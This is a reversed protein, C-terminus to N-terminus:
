RRAGATASPAPNSIGITYPGGAAASAAASAEASAAASRCREARRCQCGREARGCQRCRDPRRIVRHQQVRERHGRVRSGILFRARISGKQIM